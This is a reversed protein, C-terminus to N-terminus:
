LEVVERGIRVRNGQKVGVARVRVTPEPGEQVDYYVRLGGIRLVWPALPNRRMAKRNRTAKTPEHSLDRVVSAQVVARERATLVRLHGESEPSYQITYPV